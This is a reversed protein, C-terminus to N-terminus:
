LITIFNVKLYPNGYRSNIFDLNLEIFDNAEQMSIFKTNENDHRSSCIRNAKSLVLENKCYADFLNSSHPFLEINTQDFSISISYYNKSM